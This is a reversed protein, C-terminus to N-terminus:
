QYRCGDLFYHLLAAVLAALFAALFTTLFAPHFLPAADATAITTSTPPRM